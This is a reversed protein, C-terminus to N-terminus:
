VEANIEFSTMWYFTKQKYIAFSCVKGLWIIEGKVKTIIRVLWPIWTPTVLRMNICSRPLQHSGNSIPNKSSTLGEPLKPNRDSVTIQPFRHCWNVFSINAKNFMPFHAKMRGFMGKADIWRCALIFGTSILLWCCFLTASVKINLIIINANIDLSYWYNLPTIYLLFIISCVPVM